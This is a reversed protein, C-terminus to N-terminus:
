SEFVGKFLEEDLISIGPVGLQKLVKMAQKVVRNTLFGLFKGPKNVIKRVTWKRYIKKDLAKDVDDIFPLRYSFFLLSINLFHTLLNCITLTSLIETGIFM